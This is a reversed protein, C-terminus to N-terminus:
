SYDQPNSPQDEKFETSIIAFCHDNIPQIYGSAWLLNIYSQANLSYKSILVALYKKPIEKKYESNKLDDLISKVNDEVKGM